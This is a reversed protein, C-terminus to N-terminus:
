QQLAQKKLEEATVRIRKGDQMIVIATDTQIAILRALEAARRLAAMAANAKSNASDSTEANTM